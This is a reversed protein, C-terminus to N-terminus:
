IFTFLTLSILLFTWEGSVEKQLLTGAVFREQVPVYYGQECVPTRCDFGSWGAACRCTNPASCNGGNACVFVGRTINRLEVAAVQRDILFYWPLTHRRRAPKQAPTFGGQDGEYQEGGKIGGSGMIDDGHWGFPTKPTYRAYPTFIYEDLHARLEADSQDTGLLGYM